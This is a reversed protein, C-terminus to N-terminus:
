LTCWQNKNWCMKVEIGKWIQWGKKTQPNWFFIEDSINPIETVMTAAFCHRGGSNLFFFWVNKRAALKKPLIEMVGGLFFHKKWNLWERFCLGPETQFQTTQNWPVQSHFVIRKTETIPCGLWGRINPAQIGLSKECTESGLPVEDMELVWEHPVGAKPVNTTHM